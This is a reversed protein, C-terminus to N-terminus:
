SAPKYLGFVAGLPDALVAIRGVGEIDWPERMVSGGLEKAKAATDDVDDPTIYTTWNPPAPIDGLPMGGAVDRDGTKFLTYTMGGMDMDGAKWGFVSGYFSKEAEIDKAM